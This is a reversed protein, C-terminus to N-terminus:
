KNFTFNYNRKWPPASLRTLSPISKLSVSFGAVRAPKKPYIEKTSSLPISGSVKQIGNLRAGLQAVAGYTNRSIPFQERSRILTYCRTGNEDLGTKEPTPIRPAFRALVVGLFVGWFWEWFHERCGREHGSGYGSRYGSSPTIVKTKPINIETCCLCFCYKDLHIYHAANHIDFIICRTSPIGCKLAKYCVFYHPKTHHPLYVIACSKPSITPNQLKKRSSNFKTKQTHCLKKPKLLANQSVAL